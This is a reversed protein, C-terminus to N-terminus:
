SIVGRLLGLVIIFAAVALVLGLNDTITKAGDGWGYTRPYSVDSQTTNQEVEQVTVTVDGDSLNFTTTSGSAVTQTQEDLSQTDRLKLTTENASANINEATIELRDSLRETENEELEITQVGETETADIVTPIAVVVFLIIIGLSVAQVINPM